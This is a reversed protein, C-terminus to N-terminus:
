AMVLGGDVNLVQGTIYRAEESALFLVAQAVDEPSGFSGLPIQKLIEDKLAPSLKRTMDTDIFGPAIANATIERSAVEKAITKTLGILGAKAAAYNAQGANGMLGVVSAISIIRGWRQRVMHRLVARSCLFAGKLNIALVQDWDADSMRLLLQDRAIGANNVLIDVRGLAAVAEEVLRSVEEARSIDALIVVAERGRSRIEEAVEGAGPSGEIDNVVLSAGHEALKLAIARGIGRGSGTVLAVRGSLDMTM